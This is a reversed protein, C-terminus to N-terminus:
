RSPAFKRDDLRLRFEGIRGRPAVSNMEHLFGQVFDGCKPDWSLNAMTDMMKNLIADSYEANKAMKHLREAVLVGRSRTYSGAYRESNGGSRVGDVSSVEAILFKHLEAIHADFDHDSGPFVTLGGKRPPGIDKDIAYPNFTNRKVANALLGLVFIPDDEFARINVEVGHHYRLQAPGYADVSVMKRVKDWSECYKAYFMERAARGQVSPPVERWAADALREALAAFVPPVNTTGQSHAVIRVPIDARLLDIILDATRDISPEFMRGRQSNRLAAISHHVGAIINMVPGPPHEGPILGHQNNVMFFTPRGTSYFSSSCYDRVGPVGEVPIGPLFVCVGCETLRSYSFNSSRENGEPLVYANLGSSGLRKGREARMFDELPVIKHAKAIDLLERRRVREVVEPDLEPSKPVQLRTREPEVAVPPLLITAPSPQPKQVPPLEPLDSRVPIPELLVAGRSTKSQSPLQIDNGPM